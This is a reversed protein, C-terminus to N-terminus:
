VAEKENQEAAWRAFERERQKEREVAPHQSLDEDPVEHEQHEGGVKRAHDFAEGVRDPPSYIPQGMWTPRHSVPIAEDLSAMKEFVTEVPLTGILHRQSEVVELNEIESPKVPIVGVGTLDAGLRMAIRNAEKFEHFAAATKQLLTLFAERKANRRDTAEQICQPGYEAVAAAQDQEAQQQLEVCIGLEHELEGQRKEAAIIPGLRRSRSEV